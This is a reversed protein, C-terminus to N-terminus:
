EITVEGGEQADVFLRSGTLLAMGILPTGEIQYALVPRPSGHWSVLAGYVESAIEGEDALRARRQGYYTLGLEKVIREPLTLWGTFGTDVIAEETQFVHNGGAIGIAIRPELLVIDEDAAAVQVKGKIM